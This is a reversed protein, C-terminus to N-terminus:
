GSILPVISARFPHLVSEFLPKNVVTMCTKKKTTLYWCFSQLLNLILNLLLELRDAISFQRWKMDSIEGWIGTRSIGTAAAASDSECTGISSECNTEGSDWSTLLPVVPLMLQLEVVLAVVVPNVSGSKAWFTTQGKTSNGPHPCRTPTPLTISGLDLSTSM